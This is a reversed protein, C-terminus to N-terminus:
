IVAIEFRMGIKPEFASPVAQGRVTSFRQVLKLRAKFRTSLANEKEGGGGRRRIQSM